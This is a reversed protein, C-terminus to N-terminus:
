IIVALLREEIGPWPERLDVTEIRLTHGQLEIREALHLDNVAPYLLIGSAQAHQASLHAQTKLYAYLQYLHTSDFGRGGWPNQVLSQATFKTDLIIMRGSSKEKLFLDPKMSPLYRSESKEHWHITKQSTTEWGTLHIRYFNAVFREYIRYLILAERDVSPLSRNGEEDLPMQRQVVLECIALMLRYDLDHRVAQQRRIFDLDLEIMDVDNLLRTTWRLNHRLEEALKRDPGFKGTQILRMLTSRIIQNKPVNIGYAQFECYAQGHEFAHRKLSETFNIRGRIGHLLHSEDRYDRGLGIRVRQRTLKMLVSGLLADLTPADEVDLLWAPTSFPVENWAYLLMHWLNRIPIGYETWYLSQNNATDM